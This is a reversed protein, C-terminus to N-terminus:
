HCGWADEIAAAAARVGDEGRIAAGTRAAAQRMSMDSVAQRIADALRERTLARRPIPM